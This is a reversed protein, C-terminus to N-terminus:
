GYQFQYTGLENGSEDKIVMKPAPTQQGNRTLLYTKGEAGVFTAQFNITQGARYPGEPSAKLSASFPPGFQFRNDEGPKVEFRAYPEGTMAQAKWTNGQADKAELRCEYLSYEDAPFASTGETLTVALWGSHKSSLLMRVEPGHYRLDGMEVRPPALALSSGDQAVTAEWWRSAVQWLRSFPRAEDSSTQPFSGTLDYQGDGNVDLLLRDGGAGRSWVDDFLGNVNVDVLAVRCERGDLEATGELCGAPCLFVASPAGGRGLNLTRLRVMTRRVENGASFTLLVPEFHAEFSKQSAIRVPAEEALDNDNDRDMYVVDYLPADTRSRDFVMTLIRDEGLGPLLYHAFRPTADVYVPQRILREAPAPDLDVLTTGELSRMEAESLPRLRLAVETAQPVGALFGRGLLACLVAVWWSGALQRRSM